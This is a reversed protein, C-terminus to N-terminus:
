RTWCCSTPSPSSPKPSPSGCAGAAPSPRRRASRRTTTSGWATSSRPPGRRRGRPTSPRYGPGSPAWAPRATAPSRAPRAARPRSCPRKRPWCSKGSGTSRWCPTWCRPKMGPCSRNWTCSKSTPRFGKSKGRRWRACCRRNARGTAGSSATGGAPPSSYRSPLPSLTTTLARADAAPGRGEGTEQEERVADSILDAGGNSVTVNDLKVDRAGGGGAGRVIRPVARAAAARAAAAHAEAASRAAEDEAAARRALKALDKATAMTPAVVGAADPFATRLSEKDTLVESPHLEHKSIDDLVVPAALLAAPAGDAAARAATAAPTPALAALAARAAGEDAVAGSGALMEALAEVAGDLGDAAWDWDALSSSVYDFLHADAAAGTGGAAVCAARLADAAPNLDPMTTFFAGQRAGPAPPSHRGIPPHSVARGAGREVM